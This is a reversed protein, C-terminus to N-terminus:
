PSCTGVLITFLDRGGTALGLISIFLLIFGLLKEDPEKGHAYEKDLLYLVGLILPIKVVFFSENGFAGFLLRPIVHQEGCSLFELAVFTATTDLMQGIFATKALPNQLFKWAYKNGLWFVGTSIIGTGAVVIAAAVWEHANLVNFLVLPLALIIGM